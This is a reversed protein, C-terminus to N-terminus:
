CERIGMMNFTTAKSITRIAKIPIIKNLLNTRCNTRLCITLSSFCVYLSWYFRDNAIFYAKAINKVVASMVKIM